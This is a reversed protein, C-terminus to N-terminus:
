STPSRPWDDSYFDQRMVMDSADLDQDEAAAILDALKVKGSALLENARSFDRTTKAAHAAAFDMLGDEFNDFLWHEYDGDDVLTSYEWWGGEFTYTFQPTNNLIILQARILLFQTPIVDDRPPDMRPTDYIQRLIQANALPEGDQKTIRMFDISRVRKTPIRLARPLSADPENTVEFLTYMYNFKKAREIEDVARSIFRFLSADLSAGRGLVTRLSAKVDSLNTM